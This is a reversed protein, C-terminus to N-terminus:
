RQNEELDTTDDPEALLAEIDPLTFAVEDEFCTLIRDFQKHLIQPDAKPGTQTSLFEAFLTRLDSDAEAGVIDATIIEPEDGFIPRVGVIEADPVIASVQEALTPDNTPTHIKFLCLDRGFTSANARLKDLTGEFIRLQRASRLAVTTIEAPQGPHLDAIVVSKQEGAEGFDLQLPSGAYCATVGSIRLQQPKHIHGLAAYSVTPLDAPDTAYKDDIHMARETGSLEAGRVYEHATFVAIERSTDLDRVLEAALEREFEGVARAYSSYWQDPNDYVNTQTALDVFPLVGLRLTTDGPGDFRLIGGDNPDRRSDILHIGSRPGFARAFHRFWHPSDHNGRLVVIPAIAALEQLVDIAIGEDRYSPRRHDFLDGSHIILHPERTRAIDIIEHLVAIHDEARSRQYLMKGLHWDSTHLIRM